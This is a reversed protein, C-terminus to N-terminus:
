GSRLLNLPKFSIGCRGEVDEMIQLIEWCVSSRPDEFGVKAVGQTFGEEIAIDEIMGLSLSKTTQLVSEFGNRKASVKIIDLWM